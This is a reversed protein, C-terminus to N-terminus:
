RKRWIKQEPKANQATQRLGVAWSSPSLLLCRGGLDKGNKSRSRSNPEM